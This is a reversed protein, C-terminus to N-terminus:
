PGFVQGLLWFALVAVGVACFLAAPMNRGVRYIVVGVVVALVKVWAARGFTLHGESLFIARSVIGAAVAFSIYTLCRIYARGFDRLSRWLFPAARLAYTGLGAGLVVATWQLETM